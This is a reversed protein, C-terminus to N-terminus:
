PKRNMCDQLFHGQRHLSLRRVKQQEILQRSCDTFKANDEAWRKKAAALRARTWTKIKSVVTPKSVESSSSAAPTQAFTPAQPFMIGALGVAAALLWSRVLKM